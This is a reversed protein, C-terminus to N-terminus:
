KTSGGEFVGRKAFLKKLRPLDRSEADLVAQFAKWKEATLGFHRRMALMEEARSLASDLVFESVSRREAAAAAQLAQKAASTLRLDLKESRSNAAPM